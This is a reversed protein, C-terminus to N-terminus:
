VPSVYTKIDAAAIMWPGGSKKLEVAIYTIKGKFGKM